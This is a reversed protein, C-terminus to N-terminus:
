RRLFPSDGDSTNLGKERKRQFERRIYYRQKEAQKKYFFYYFIIFFIWITPDRSSNNPWFHDMTYNLAIITIILLPTLFLFLYIAAAKPPGLRWILKYYLIRKKLDSLSFPANLDEENARRAAKKAQVAAGIEWLDEINERGLLYFFVPSALLWLFSLLIMSYYVSILLVSLWIVIIALNRMSKKRLRKKLEKESMKLYRETKTEPRRPTDDTMWSM